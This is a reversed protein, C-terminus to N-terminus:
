NHNLKTKNARFGPLFKTKIRAANQTFNGPYGGIFGAVLRAPSLRTLIASDFIEPNEFERALSLGGM